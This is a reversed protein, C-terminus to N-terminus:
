GGYASGDPSEESAPPLFEVAGSMQTRLDGFVKACDVSARVVHKTVSAETIGLREAIESRSFGYARFLLFVERRRAPLSELQAVVREALQRYAVVHESSPAAANAMVAGRDEIWAQVVKRHRMEDIVLNHAVKFLMARPSEIVGEIPTRLARAYVQEFSTQAIDNADEENRLRYVLMRRLDRYHLVLEDVIGAPLITM